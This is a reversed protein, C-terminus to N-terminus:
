CTAFRLMLILWAVGPVCAFRTHRIMEREQAASSYAPFWSRQETSYHMSVTGEAKFDLRYLFYVIVGSMTLSAGYAYWWAAGGSMLVLRVLGVSLLLASYSLALSPAVNMADYAVRESARTSTAQVVRQVLPLDDDPVGHDRLQAKHWPPTSPAIVDRLVQMRLRSAFATVIYPVTAAILWEALRFIDWLVESM